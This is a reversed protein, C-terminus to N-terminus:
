RLQDGVSLILTSKLSIPRSLTSLIQSLVPVPPAPNHVTLGYFAPSEKVLVSVPLLPTYPWRGRWTDLSILM